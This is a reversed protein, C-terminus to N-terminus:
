AEAKMTKLIKLADERSIDVCKYAMEAVHVAVFAKSKDKNIIIGCHDNDYQNAHSYRTIRIKNTKTMRTTYCV